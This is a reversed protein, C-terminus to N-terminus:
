PLIVTVQVSHTLSPQATSTLTLQATYTGSGMSVPASPPTISVSPTSTNSGCGLTAALTAGLLLLPLMCLGSRRSRRPAILLGVLPLPFIGCVVGCVMGGLLLPASVARRPASLQSTGSAARQLVVSATVPGQTLTLPTSALSCTVSAPLGSCALTLSGGLNGSPTITLPVSASTGPQLTASSTGAQLTFDPPAIVTISSTASTSSLFNSDGAYSATLTQAGSPLTANSLTAQGNSLAASGLPQGDALFTVQGSPVGAIQPLVSASLSLTTGSTLPPGFSVTTAAKAVSVPFSQTVPSYNLTDQPTFTVAVAPTGAPLLATDTVSYSYTGPIAAANALFYTAPRRGPTVSQIFSAIRSALFDHGAPTPHALSGAPESVGTYDWNNGTSPDYTSGYFYNDAEMDEYFVIGPFMAAADHIARATDPLSNQPGIAYIPGQPVCSATLETFLQIAGAYTDSYDDGDNVGGVFVFGTPTRACANEIELRAAFDSHTTGGNHYGEGGDPSQEYDWNFYEGLWQPYGSGNLGAQVPPFYNQSISPGTWSDGVIIFRDSLPVEPATISQGAPLVFGFFPPDGNLLLKIQRPRRDPFHVHYFFPTPYQNAQQIRDSTWDGDVWLRYASQRSQVKFEFQDCDCTFAVRFDFGADPSGSTAIYGGSDNPETSRAMDAGEYRLMPSDPPVVIGGSIGSTTTPSDIVTVDASLSWVPRASASATRFTDALPNGYTLAPPTWSLSPTASAVQFSQEADAASYVSNGAQHVHVTVTGPGTIKLLRQRLVAPGSVVTYDLPLNSSTVALLQFPAVGIVQNSVTQFQITQPVLSQAEVTGLDLLLFAWLALLCASFRM